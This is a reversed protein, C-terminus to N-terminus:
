EKVVGADQRRSVRRREGREWREGDVETDWCGKKM